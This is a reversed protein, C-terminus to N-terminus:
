GKPLRAWIKAPDVPPTVGLGNELLDALEDATALVRQDIAGGALHETVRANWVFIRGDATLREALLNAHFLSAPNTSAFWNAVEYDAAIQPELTFWYLDQWGEPLRAQLVFERDAGTLRVIGTPTPQEIDRELKIPGGLLHGAFGVDALYAGEDLDVRLLQHTRPGDPRGPPAMWRVRGSLGTVSFGLAELAAAFLTNVEFCYGGRRQGVLKAQLSGLDLRVPRGMFPDLSEFPISAPQLAHIARLTSLTPL